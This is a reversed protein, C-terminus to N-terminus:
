DWVGVRDREWGKAVVLRNEIDTFRNTECITENVDYKLNWMYIIDHYRKTHCKSHYYRLDTACPMIENKKIATYYKRSYVKICHRSCTLAGCHEHFEIVM